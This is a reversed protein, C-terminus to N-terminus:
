LSFTFLSRQLRFNKKQISTSILISTSLREGGSMLDRIFFFDVPISSTNKYLSICILFKWIYIKSTVHHKTMFTAYFLKKWSLNHRFFLVQCLIWKSCQKGTYIMCFLKTCLRKCSRTCCWLTKVDLCLMVNWIFILFFFIKM